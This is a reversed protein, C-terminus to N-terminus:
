FKYGAGMVTEICRGAEGLKVRLRRVHVDVTRTEGLYDYGWVKRLLQERSLVRGQHHVLFALLDFERRTLTLKRGAVSAERSLTDLMLDGATTRGSAPAAKSRRLPAKVRAVLERTSFPKTLYDDAGHEFGVLKDMETTRATLVLIPLDQMSTEARAEKLIDLGTAGPLMLDLVVADPRTAFLQELGKDGDKAVSVRYGAKELNYRILDQIEKEDEIVLILESMQSARPPPRAPPLLWPPWTTPSSS